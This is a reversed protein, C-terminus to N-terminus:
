STTNRKNRIRNNRYSKKSEILVKREDEETRLRWLKRQNLTMRISNRCIFNKLLSFQPILRVRELVLNNTTKNRNSPSSQKKSSKNIPIVSRQKMSSSTKNDIKKELKNNHNAQFTQQNAKPPKALKCLLFFFGLLKLSSSAKTSM